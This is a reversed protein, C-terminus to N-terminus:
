YVLTHLELLALSINQIKGYKNLYEKCLNLFFCVVDFIGIM